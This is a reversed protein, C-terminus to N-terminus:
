PPSVRRATRRRAYQPPPRDQRPSGGPRDERPPGERSARHRVCPPVEPRRRTRDASGSRAMQRWRSSGAHKSRGTFSLVPAPVLVWTGSGRWLVVEIAGAGAVGHCAISGRV